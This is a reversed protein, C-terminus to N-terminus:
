FSIRIGARLSFGNININGVRPNKIFEDGLKPSLLDMDNFDITIYNLGLRKNKLIKPIYERKILRECLTTYSDMNVM